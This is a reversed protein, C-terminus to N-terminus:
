KKNNFLNIMYTDMKNSSLFSLNYMIVSDGKTILLLQGKSIFSYMLGHQDFAIYHGEEIKHLTVINLSFQESKNASKIKIYFNGLTIMGGINEISLVKTQGGSKSIHKKTSYDFSVQALSNLSITVLTLFSLLIKTGM